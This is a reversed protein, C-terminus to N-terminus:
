LNIGNVILLISQILQQVNDNRNAKQEIRAHMDFLMKNHANGKVMFCFQILQEFCLCESYSQDWVIFLLHCHHKRLM